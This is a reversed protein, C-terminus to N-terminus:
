DPPDLGYFQKAVTLFQNADVCPAYSKNEGDIALKVLLDVLRWVNYLVCAFVFNFFRYDRETSTTRVMFHKQKKFGNEIGWRRRYWRILREIMHIFARGDMQQDDADGATVYPHNTEFVVTGATDVEGEQAKQKRDEVDEERQIDALLRSFSMGESPKGEVDEFEWDGCLETWVASLDDDEDEDDSNSRKPLYVQKRTPTEDDAEAETVHFRKGNRYMWAITDAEDSNEFIRTPNLFHVGYEECTDKVPGSDFERDMMVLAINVMETTQSLLKEVIEDKSQGRVRPIADLVLPVDMGVIKLVAWQYYDNGDKYGLIDDEHDEVDGTFPFGKTVDIAAFVPGDLEGNQRARAILMRTTNRLMERIEAVSLKEIQYRHTSGTPIRDRTTDLSFSAPGSRAYMDERMGMYAHQEWFANEHIEWNQGRDLAFADTVFPKAQEWVEDTKEAVLQHEPRSDADSDVPEHTEIRNPLSVECARAARVIADAGEQVADRLQASFRENWARWFTSQNPLSEFGLAQRLSPHARLHDHLATEDWGNIEMLLTARVHIAMPYRGSYPALSDHAAFMLHDIPLHRILMEIDRYSEWRECQLQAITTVDGVFGDLDDGSGDAEGEFFRPQGNYGTADAVLAAAVMEATDNLPTTAPPRADIRADTDPSDSEPTPTTEM